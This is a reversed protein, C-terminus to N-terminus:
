YGTRWVRPKHNWDGHYGLELHHYSYLHEDYEMEFGIDWVSQKDDNESTCLLCIIIDSGDPGPEILCVEADAYTRM